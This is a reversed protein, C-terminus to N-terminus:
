MILPADVLRRIVVIQLVLGVLAAGIPVVILAVWFPMSYGAVLTVTTLAGIALFEGHAFNVIRMVGFILNLGGAMLAYLGGLLIGGVLLELVPVNM